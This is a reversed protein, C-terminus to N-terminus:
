LAMSSCTRSLTSRITQICDNKGWHILANARSADAALLRRLAEADGNRIPTKMDTTM